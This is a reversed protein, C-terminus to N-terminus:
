GDVGLLDRAVADATASVSPHARVATLFAERGVRLLTTEITAAVTARRTVSYLLAIEGFGQGSDMRRIEHGGITVLVSGHTIAYYSDGADGESIVATGPHVTEYSSERALTELPAAPLASFIEMNRFVGM